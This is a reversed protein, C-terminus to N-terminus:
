RIRRATMQSTWNIVQVRRNEDAFPDAPNKPQTKGFGRALLSRPNIGHVEILHRRVAEARAQSLVLNYGANGRADTHGAIVFTSQKFSPDALAQGLIRLAAAAEPSITSSNLAFFVEIDVNPLGERRAMEPAREIPVPSTVPPAGPPVIPREARPPPQPGQAPPPVPTVPPPAPAAVPPQTPPLVQPPRPGAPPPTAAPPGAVPPPQPAPAPPVGPATPPPTPAAVPPPATPGKQPAKAGPRELRKILDEVERKERDKEAKDFIDKVPGREQAGAPLALAAFVLASIFKRTMFPM